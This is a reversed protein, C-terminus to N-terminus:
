SVLPQLELTQWGSRSGLIMKGPSAGTVGEVLAYLLGVVPVWISGGLMAQVIMQAPDQGESLPVTTMVGSAGAVMFGLISGFVADILFAGLRKGFGVRENAAEGAPDTEEVEDQFSESQVDEDSM